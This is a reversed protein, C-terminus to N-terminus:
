RRQQAREVTCLQPRLTVCLSPRRRQRQLIQLLGLDRCMDQCSQQSTQHQLRGDSVIPWRQNPQKWVRRQVVNHGSKASISIASPQETYRDSTRGVLLPSGLQSRSTPRVFRDRPQWASSALSGCIADIEPLCCLRGPGSLRSLVRSQGATWDSLSTRLQSAISNSLLKSALSRLFRESM